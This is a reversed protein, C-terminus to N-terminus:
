SKMCSQYSPNNSCRLRPKVIKLLIGLVELQKNERLLSNKSRLDRAFSGFWVFIIRRLYESRTVISLCKSPCITQAMSSCCRIIDLGINFVPKVRFRVDPPSGRCKPLDTVSKGIFNFIKHGIDITHATARM